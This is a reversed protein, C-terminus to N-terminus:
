HLVSLFQELKADAPQRWVAITEITTIGRALPRMVVGDPCYSTMAEPVITMGAGARVLGLMGLMNSAEFQINLEIGHHHLAEEVRSRYVDWHRDTGLVM